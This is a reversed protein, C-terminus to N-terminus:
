RKKSAEWLIKAAEKGAALLQEFVKRVKGTDAESKLCRLLAVAHAQDLLESIAPLLWEQVGYVKDAATCVPVAGALRDTMQERLTALAADIQQEKPRKPHQWDYPPSWEMMPSLLDIHTLVGLLPPMKLEPHSRFFERLKDLFVVDTERGPNRAHMVLLILDAQRAAEANARAQKESSGDQGYGMTDLIQLQTPFNESRLAYRTIEDTAPLIDVRARQEGLLANIVSSKGAKVQGIVAITVDRVADAPESGAPAEAARNEQVLQRYRSAGVRLRGSNLEILYNGLRHLYASYFWVLLNLQFKQWPGSVGAQSALFRVATEVPAFLSYVLWSLASAQQYWDAAQKAKRWANVTLLNGGPVYRDVMEALDHSALEVVALMEPITLSGVPDSAGPHYFKALELGMDRATDVYLPLTSLAEADLKSAAEARARVLEWAQRDRDTWHIPPTFDLRLLRRQKQWYWGLIFALGMCATMPWWAWRGMGTFWLFYIGCGLMFLLPVAWLTTVVILRWHPM